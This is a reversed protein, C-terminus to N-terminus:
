APDSRSHIDDSAFAASGVALHDALCQLSTGLWVISPDEVKLVLYDEQPVNSAM